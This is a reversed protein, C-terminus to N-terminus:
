LVGGLPSGDGAIDGAHNVSRPHLRAFDLDEGRSLQLGHQFREPALREIRDDRGREAGPQPATLQQRQTPLVYIEVPGVEPDLAGQLLGLPSPEQELRGLGLVATAQHCQRGGGDREQALM